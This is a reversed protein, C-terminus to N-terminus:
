GCFNAIVEGVLPPRETPITRESVWVMSNTKNKIFSLSWNLIILQGTYTNAGTTVGKNQEKWTLSLLSILDARQKYAKLAKIFQSISVISSMFMIANRDVLIRLLLM